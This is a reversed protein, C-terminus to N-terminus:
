KNKRKKANKLAKEYETVAKKMDPMFKAIPKLAQRQAKLYFKRERDEAPLGYIPCGCKACKPQAWKVRDYVFYDFEVDAKTIDGCNPCKVPAVWTMKCIKRGSTPRGNAYTVYAM